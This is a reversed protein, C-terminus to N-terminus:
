YCFLQFGWECVFLFFCWLYHPFEIKDFQQFAHCLTFEPFHFTYIFHSHSKERERESSKFTSFTMQKHKKKRNEQKYQEKHSYQKFKLSSYLRTFACVNVQRGLFANDHM